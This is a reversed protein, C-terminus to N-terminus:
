DGPEAASPGGGIAPPAVATVTARGRSKLRHEVYVALRSLGYNIVIFIVAIVILSPVPNSKYAGIQQFTNLLEKYTIIQGLATDKLVVVLQGVLAPLMATIAQPLQILRLTRWPTLGISLGAERQGSPLSGVGSRILEAVISGNYLTLAVVVAMLPNLEDVFVGNSTFYAYGAIMMVLVPVSRFFEVVIACVWRVPAITSMRGIGFILGFVGAGIIALGAAELTGILGPILYETWIEGTLFPTWKDADLQGKQGFQWLAWAIAALIVVSGIVAIVRNRARAKPGPADFLVSTSM